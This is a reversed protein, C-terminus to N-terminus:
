CRDDARCRGRCRPGGHARKWYIERLAVEHIGTEARVPPLGLNGPQLSFPYWSRFDKAHSSAYGGDERQRHPERAGSIAMGATKGAAHYLGAIFPSVMTGPQFFSPDCIRRISTPRRVSNKM